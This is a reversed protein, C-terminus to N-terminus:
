SVPDCLGHIRVAHALDDPGAAGLGVGHRNGRRIVAFTLFVLWLGMLGAFFSMIPLAM